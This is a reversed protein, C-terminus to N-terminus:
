KKLYEIVTNIHMATGLLFVSEDVNFKPNHNYYVTDLDKPRGGLWWYSGPRKELYYSFDEGGMSPEDLVIVNKPGILKEALSVIFDCEKDHNILPPYAKILDLNISCNHMAGMHYTIEKMRTFILERVSPKLTRITGTLEVKDPIINFASGGHITCVSVVGSDIPNINRSTIQQLAVVLESACLVPDHGTHPASAHTGIGEVVIKFEDPAAMAPGKKISITGAVDRTTIHLGFVADVDDLHGENVVFVGGGPMPGEEAAQFVAKFTGNIKDKHESLYKCAGLLMATHTDHGCSHMLGDNVSKYKLDNEEQMFLADIDARLLVTRGKTNGTITGVVGTKGVGTTVNFGMSRLEEEIIQSTRVENFGTEPHMHFDRRKEIIYDEYDKIDNLTIM